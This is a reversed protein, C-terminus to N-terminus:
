VAAAADAAEPPIFARSQTSCGALLPNALHALAGGGALPEHGDHDLLDASHRIM